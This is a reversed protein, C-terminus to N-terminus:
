GAHSATFANVASIVADQQEPRLGPYLPLSLLEDGARESEPFAGRVHGLAAYMPQLHLAIPYHVITGVGAVSLATALAERHPTRVPYLHYVHRRRAVERPLQVGHLAEDYRGALIRRAITSAPLVGLKVRLVAAQVEDLRSNIGLEVHRYRQSQGGNRLRRVKEAVSALNTTVAGGDGYAGLNKTPYFSFAAAAGFSGAPKGDYLAGVAQAVDEVVPIGRQAAIALIPELDACQGYLHVPLIARTRPTIAAELKAPDMTLTVPEVDCFVPRAGLMSIALGTYAATMPVTVVDDGAGVGVAELALRIADTGNGVGIAHACGATPAFEREFADGEEGLVFWGRHAVRAMAAVIEDLISADQVAIANFPVQM